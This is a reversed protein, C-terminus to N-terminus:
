FLRTSPSPILFPCPRHLLLSALPFLPVVQKVEGKKPVGPPKPLRPFQGPLSRRCREAGTPEVVAHRSLSSCLHRGRRSVKRPLRADLLFLCLTPSHHRHIFSHARSRVRWLDDVERTWAKELDGLPDGPFGFSRM